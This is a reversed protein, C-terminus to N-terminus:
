KAESLARDVLKRFKAYPQAGSISYGNIFFAPTGTVGVAKGAATDADIEAKHTSNDLANKFKAMDLNLEQAAKELGERKLGDATGQVGYLKDHMKWFGDPGKQKFAEMAAQAALPADAHFELPFNRWVLKV